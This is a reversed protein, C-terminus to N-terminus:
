LQGRAVWRQFVDIDGDKNWREPHAINIETKPTLQPFFHKVSACMVESTLKAVDALQDLPAEFIYSDHLPILLRARYAPYVVRLQNGAHKFAIAASGQVPYNRCMRERASQSITRDLYIKLGSITEIYGRHLSKSVEKEIGDRIGKYLSLFKKLLRAAEELPVGLNTALSGPGSGYLIALTCTKLIKRKLPEKAKFEAGTLAKDENSLQEAYFIKAMSSYVDDTNFAHILADDGYYAAAIGVEIQSLDVEGIGYGDSPIVVTRVLKNLGLINPNEASQRGTETALQTHTAFVRGASDEIDPTLIKEHKLSNIRRCEIIKGIVPHVDAKAKLASKSVDYSGNTNFLELLGYKKLCTQITSPNEINALGMKKLNQKIAPWHKAYAQLIQRSREPDMRIGNHEIVANTLTWPMEVELIHQLLNEKDAAKYQKLYIAAHASLHLFESHLNSHRSLAIPEEVGYQKCMHHLTLPNNRQQLLEEKFQWSFDNRERIRYNINVKGLHTSRQFISLDWINKPTTINNRLLINLFPKSNHLIVRTQTQFLTKTIDNHIFNNLIFKKHHGYSVFDKPFIFLLLDRETELGSTDFMSDSECSVLTACAGQTAPSNMLEQLTEFEEATNVTASETIDNEITTTM